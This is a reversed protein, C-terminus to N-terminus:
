LPSERVNHQLASGMRDVGDNAKETTAPVLVELGPANTALWQQIAPQGFAAAYFDANLNSWIDKRRAGHLCLLRVVDLHGFQIAKALPTPEQPERQFDVNSGSDLLAQVCELQGQQAVWTLVSTSPDVLTDASGGAALAARLHESDNQLCAEMIPRALQAAIRDCKAAAERRAADAEAEKNAALAAEIAQVNLKAIPSGPSALANQWDAKGLIPTPPPAKSPSSNTYNATIEYATGETPAPM